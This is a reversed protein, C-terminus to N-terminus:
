SENIFDKEILFLDYLDVRKKYSNELLGNLASPIRKEYFKHLLNYVNEKVEPLILNQPNTIYYVQIELLTNAMINIVDRSKRKPDDLIYTTILNRLKEEFKEKKM